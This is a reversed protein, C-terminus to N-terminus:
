CVLEMEKRWKIAETLADDLTGYKKASFYERLKEAGTTIYTAYYGTINGSTQKVASIGKVGYINTKRKRAKLINQRQSVVELNNISNNLPNSDIHNVVYNYPIDIDLLIMIVRHCKFSKGELYLQWYGNSNTGAVKGRMKQHSGRGQANKKWILGSPSDASIELWERLLDQHESMNRFHAPVRSNIVTSIHKKYLTKEIEISDWKSLNIELLEVEFPVAGISRSWVSSRSNKDYARQYTGSGIYRIIGDVKHCYVCYKNM